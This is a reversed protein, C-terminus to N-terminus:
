LHQENSRGLVADRLRRGLHRALQLLIKNSLKAETELLSLFDSGFFVAVRCPVLARAQAARPANDLLALEGFFSGPGLAAIAGDEPRGQRCILVEGALIIYVAYGEEGEDFIIEGAQYDREHLVGQVIKLEGPSLDGFLSLAKLHSLLNTEPGSRFFGFM